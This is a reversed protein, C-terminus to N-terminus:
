QGERVLRSLARAALAHAGIAVAEDRAARYLSQAEAERGLAREADGHLRTLEPGFHRLKGPHAIRLAADVAPAVDVPRGAMLLTEALISTLEVETIHTLSHDILAKARRIEQVAEGAGSGQRANAWALHVESIPIWLSFGEAVSLSRLERATQQVQEANAQAHFYFCLQALSYARSPAHRLDTVLQRWRRLSDAAEEARGLVQLAETQYCWLAISSSFQFANALQKERDFDFDALGDRALRLAEAYEGRYFHTYGLAHHGTVRLMPDGSAESMEFVRHAIDLAPALQGRLFNVTWLGWMAQYLRVGDGSGAALDRLRSCSREVEPAAWGRTAMYAPGVAAQLDLELAAREAEPLVDVLEIGHELHEVAEAVATRGLAKIGADRLLPVAAARLGAREAHYAGIEPRAALVEPFSERLARFIREHLQARKSLLVTQYVADQILAHKFRYIRNPLEGQVFALESRGIVDLHQRLEDDGTSVLARILPYTFERGIASGLQAIERSEGLRDFRAALSEQLTSPLFREDFTGVLEYGGAHLRLAGSELVAKTVEEIFLPIGESRKVIAQLVAPPLVHGGAVHTVMAEIEPLDLGALEITQVDATSWPARFEPRGTICLLTRAGSRDRVLLDLLDLTSPDAWHVDEVLLVFPSVTSASVMWEQLVELTRMRRRVPSLARIPEEDAGPISLLGAMLPLVDAGLSLHPGLFRALANLKAGATAEGEVREAVNTALMEVIPALPTAQALPSCFCKAVLAGDGLATHRFQHVIRSKGIGADGRVFLARDTGGQVECWASGLAALEGARGVYPTLRGRAAAEFRTHVGTPRVVRFLELSRTFGRLVRSGLAVLEFHGEVLKATAASLLITDPDSQSQIRAALNVSEGVALRENPGDPGVEGVVVLGTHIGVRVHLEAQLRQGIGRNVSVLDDIIALGAHVARVADDEHAIPYGFYSVVGDGLFQSLYGEYRDIVSRCVLRYSNFLDKLDEPDLRESLATSGVLDCFVLTLQRRESESTRM